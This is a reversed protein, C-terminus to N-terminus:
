HWAGGRMVREVVGDDTVLVLDAAAGPTLGGGVGIAQAPRWSAAALAVAADAGALRVWNRVADDLLIGSGALRGDATRVTGAADRRV